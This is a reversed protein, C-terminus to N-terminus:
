SAVENLRAAVAALAALRVAREPHEYPHRTETAEDALWLLPAYTEPDALVERLAAVETGTLGLMWGGAWRLPCPETVQMPSPWGSQEACESCVRDDDMMVGAGNAVEDGCWDCALEPNRM